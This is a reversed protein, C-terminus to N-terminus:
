LSCVTRGQPAPATPRTLSELWRYTLSPQIRWRSADTTGVHFNVLVLALCDQRLVAHGHRAPAHDLAPFFGVRRRTLQEAFACGSHHHFRLNMGAPAALAAAHLDGLRRFRCGLQRALHEAHRQHRVLGAGLALLHLPQQDFLSQGDGALQVEADHEVAGVSAVDEHRRSRAAHLDFLDGGTVWVGDDLLVDNRAHSQLSELRALNRELQPEIGLVDAARHLEHDASARAASSM